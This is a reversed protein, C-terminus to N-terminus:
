FFKFFKPHEEKKRAWACIRCEAALRAALCASAPDDRDAAELGPLIHVGCRATQLATASGRALAWATGACGLLDRKLGAPKQVKKKEPAVLRRDM